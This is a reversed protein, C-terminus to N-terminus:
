APYIKVYTCTLAVSGSIPDSASSRLENPNVGVDKAWRGLETHGGGLAISVAEGSAGSYIYVPLKIRGRPSEVWVIDNDKLKQRQAIERSIEVKTGWVDQYLANPIEQMTSLEAGSDDRRHQIKYLMLVYPFVEKEGEFAAEEYHPLCFDEAQSDLQTFAPSFRDKAQELKQSYFEFKKSPTRFIERWRGHSYVPDWWGGNKELQKWFQDFNDYGPDKWGMNQLTKLWSADFSGNVIYGTGSRYVGALSERMYARYNKWPFAEAIGGELRKALALM